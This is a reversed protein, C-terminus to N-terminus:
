ASVNECLFTRFSIINANIYVAICLFLFVLLSVVSLIGSASTRTVLLSLSMPIKTRTVKSWGCLQRCYGRQNRVETNRFKDQRCCLPSREASSPDLPVMTLPKSMAACIPCGVMIRAGRPEKGATNIHDNKGRDSRLLM